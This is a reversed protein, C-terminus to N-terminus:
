EHGPGICRLLNKEAHIGLVPRNDPCAHM